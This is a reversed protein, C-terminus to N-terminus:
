DKKTDFGLNSAYREFSEVAVRGMQNIQEQTIDIPPRAPMRSTGYQHYKAYHVITGLTLQRPEDEYVTAPSFRNTLSRRLDGTLSLIGEGPYNKSKWKRYGDSLQRWSGYGQSDFRAAEGVYFVAAIDPWFPRWDDVRSAMLGFARVLEEDGQVEFHIDLFPM